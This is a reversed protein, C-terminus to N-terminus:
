QEGDQGVYDPHEAALHSALDPFAAHCGAPCTGEVLKRKTKTVIGKYARRSRETAQLQDDLHRARSRAAKLEAELNQRRTYHQGHGNPCYFTRSDDLRQRYLTESMGFPVGCDFCTELILTTSYTLMTM